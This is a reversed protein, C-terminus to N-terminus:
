ICNRLSYRHILTLKTISNYAFDTPVYLCFKMQWIKHFLYKSQILCTPIFLLFNLSIMERLSGKKIEKEHLFSWLVIYILIHYPTVPHTSISEQKKKMLYKKWKECQEFKQIKIKSLKISFIFFLKKLFKKVGNHTDNLEQVHLFLASGYPHTDWFGYNSMLWHILLASRGENMINTTQEIM